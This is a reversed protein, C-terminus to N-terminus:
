TATVEAKEKWERVFAAMDRPLVHWCSDGYTEKVYKLLAAYHDEATPASEDNTARLHLYDPHVNVLGMGGHEAVWDLKRRWIENTKEELLMFLTSDQPLTYPLEVYGERAPAPTYPLPASSTRTRKPAFDVIFRTGQHGNGNEDPAPVWFPFITGTGDPQPEFPDTDFSSADYRVNLDHLWGQHHHM